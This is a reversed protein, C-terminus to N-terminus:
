RQKMWAALVIKSPHKSNRVTVLVIFDAVRFMQISFTSVDLNSAKNSPYRGDRSPLPRSSQWKVSEVGGNGKLKLGSRTKCVHLARVYFNLTLNEAHVMEIMALKYIIGIAILGGFM